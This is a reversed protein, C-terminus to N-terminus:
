MKVVDIAQIHNNLLERRYFNDGVLEAQFTQKLLKIADEMGETPLMPRYDPPLYLNM